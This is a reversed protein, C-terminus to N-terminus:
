AQRTWVISINKEKTVRALLGKRRLFRAEAEAQSKWGFSKHYSYIKSGFKRIRAM